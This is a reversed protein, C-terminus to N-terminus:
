RGKVRLLEGLPVYIDRPSALATRSERALLVVENDTRRRLLVLQARSSWSVRDPEGVAESFSDEVQTIAVDRLEGIVEYGPLVGDVALVAQVSGVLRLDKIRM